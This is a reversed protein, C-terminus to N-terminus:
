LRPCPCTAPDYTPFSPAGWWPSRQNHPKGPSRAGDTEPLLASTGRQMLWPAFVGCRRSNTSGFMRHKYPRRMNFLLERRDKGSRRVRWSRAHLLSYGQGRAPVSPIRAVLIPLDRHVQGETRSKCTHRGNSPMTIHV